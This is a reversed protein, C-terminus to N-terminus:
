KLLTSKALLLLFSLGFLGFTWLYSSKCKKALVRLREPEIADINEKLLRFGLSQNNSILFFNLYKFESLWASQKITTKKLEENLDSVQSLFFLYMAASSLFLIFIIISFM